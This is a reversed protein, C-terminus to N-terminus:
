GVNFKSIKEISGPMDITLRYGKTKSRYAKVVIECDSIKYITGQSQSLGGLMNEALIKVKDPHNEALKKIKNIYKTQSLTCSITHQGTLWEIVNENNEAM